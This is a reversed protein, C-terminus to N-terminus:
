FFYFFYFIDQIKCLIHGEFKKCFEQYIETWELKQEDANSEKFFVGFDKAFESFIDKGENNGDDYFTELAKM